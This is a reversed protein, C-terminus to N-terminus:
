SSTTSVSLLDSANVTTSNSTMNATYLYFDDSATLDQAATKLSLLKTNFSQWESLKSEYETKKNEVLDVRRYEIAMLQDIMTRWDFGSVLGSILNTSLSM